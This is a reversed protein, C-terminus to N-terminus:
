RDEALMRERAARRLVKGVPSLPIDDWVELRRPRKYGAIREACFAELAAPEVAEKVVVAAAVREGWKEDALGFVVAEVVAPHSKLVDEVERPYVNFGGSIIMDNRRDVLYLFGDEDMRGIDGTRLWGDPQLVEATADPRRWYGAMVHQGRTVVEGDVGPGVPRGDDDIIGAEVLTYPRGASGLRDHDEPQLCTICLPAEAQGYTQVFVSGFADLGRQLVTPAIPAGGYCLRRMALKASEAGPEQLLMAIMTPVLFTATAQTREATELFAGPDFKTMIVSTAGRVLHPLVFAGSGHTVPAAHLMVDGPRVDPLLDLLFNTVEAVETRTTLIVGKPKGTTGGSYALRYPADLAQDVRCPASSGSAILADLEEFRITREVGELPEGYHILVRAESDSLKHAHETPTERANLPVRVLGAKVLGYYAVVSEVSNPLLVAVRDGPEFGSALLANGLRNTADDFEAFSMTRHDDIFAPAAGHVAGARRILEHIQM